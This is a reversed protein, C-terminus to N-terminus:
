NRLLLSDCRREEVRRQENGHLLNGNGDVGMFVLGVGELDREFVFCGFDKLADFLDISLSIM